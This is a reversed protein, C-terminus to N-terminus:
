RLRESRNSVCLAVRLKSGVEAMDVEGDELVKRDLFTYLQLEACLAEIYRVRRVEVDSIAAASCAESIRGESADRLSIRVVRWPFILERELRLELEVCYAVM